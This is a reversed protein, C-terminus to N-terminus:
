FPLWRSKETFNMYGVNAGLRMGVGLRIPIVVVNGRRLYTASLGGVFYARGEVQGFRRYLDQTDYLNYVLIFTRTADGGVDFGVSPGTWYVPREGEVKHVLTGSGYRLGM